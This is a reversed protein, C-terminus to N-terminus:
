EGRLRPPVSPLERALRQRRYERYRESQIALKLRKVPIRTREATASLLADRVQERAQKEEPGCFEAEFMAALIAELEESAL